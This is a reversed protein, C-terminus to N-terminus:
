YISSYETIQSHNQIDSYNNLFYSYSMFVYTSYMSYSLNSSGIGIMLDNIERNYYHPMNFVDCCSSLNMIIGILINSDKTSAM